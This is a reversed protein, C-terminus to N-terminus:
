IHIDQLQILDTLFEPNPLVLLVNGLLVLFTDSVQGVLQLNHSITHFCCLVLSVFRRWKDKLQLFLHCFHLNTTQPYAFKYQYKTIKTPFQHIKQKAREHSTDSM